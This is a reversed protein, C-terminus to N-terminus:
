GRANSAGGAPTELPVAMAPRRSSPRLWALDALSLLGKPRFRIVLLVICGFATVKWAQLPRVYEPLLTMLAAGLAAGIINDAGGFIVYLAPWTSAIFGFQDPRIFLIYHAYLGGALAALFAGCGFSILKVLVVNLGSAAAATEDEKVAQFARGIPSRAVRWLVLGVVIVTLLVDSVSTGQMGAFGRAGGVASLNILVVQITEGLAVTLMVLYIGRTRIAGLGIAMGFLATLLSSALLAPWLPTRLTVTLWSAGYAGLAMFGANGLSVQGSALIVWFSWALLINTGAFVALDPRM